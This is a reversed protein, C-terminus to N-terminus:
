TPWLLFSHVNETQTVADDSSVICAIGAAKDLNGILADAILNFTPKCGSQEPWIRKQLQVRGKCRTPRNIIEYLAAQKMRQAGFNKTYALSLLIRNTLGHLKVPM